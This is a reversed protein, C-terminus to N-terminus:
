ATSEFAEAFFRLIRDWSNRNARAYGEPTGGFAYVQKTVPHQSYNRTTQLYPMLIMHGANPYAIHQHFYPHGHTKLREIVREGMLSSPWMQDDSGSLLLVPGNIREVPIMADQYGAENKLNILFMPTLPIREQSFIETAQEPSMANGVFPLGAGDYTWAFAEGRGANGIGSWIVHSPVYGIVGRVEQFMSGLQLALEAGRSKGVLVLRSPDVREHTLMWRIATEFYEVPIDILYRPLDEFAFYALALAAIGRSAFLAAHGEQLGGGSGGIVIVAPQREEGPPLFLTGRLEEDRVPIREVDPAVYRQLLTARLERRSEISATFMIETPNIGTKAFLALNTEAPDLSMSWVLGMPDVGAYSGSEPSQAGVDVCGSEDAAFSAESQWTRGLDDRLAALLTVRKGPQVGEVSIRVPEDVLVENPEVTFKVDDSM